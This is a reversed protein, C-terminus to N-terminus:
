RKVAHLHGASSQFYKKRRRTAQEGHADKAAAVQQSTIVPGAYASTFQDAPYFTGAGTGATTQNEQSVMMAGNIIYNKKLVAINARGQAMQNATLGQPLDYRVANFVTVPYTSVWKEGDWTYGQYVQGTSPSAPFDYAM